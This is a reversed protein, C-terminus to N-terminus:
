CDTVVATKKLRAFVDTLRTQSNRIETCSNEGVKKMDQLKSRKARVSVFSDTKANRAAGIEQGDKTVAEKWSDTKRKSRRNDSMDQNEKRKTTNEMETKRRHEKKRKEKKSEKEKYHESNKQHKKDKQHKKEKTDKKQKKDKHKRDEKIKERDTPEEVASAQSSNFLDELDEADIENEMAGPSPQEIDTQWCQVAPACAVDRFSACEAVLAMLSLDDIRELHHNKASNNQSDVVKQSEPAPAPVVVRTGSCTEPFSIDSKPDNTLSQVILQGDFSKEAPESDVAEVDSSDATSRPPPTKAGTLPGGWADESELSGEDEFYVECNDTAETTSAVMSVVNGLDLDSSFAHDILNVEAEGDANQGDRPFEDSAADIIDTTSRPVDLRWGYDQRMVELIKQSM